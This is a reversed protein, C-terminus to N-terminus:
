SLLHPLPPPEGTAGSALWSRVSRWYELHRQVGGPGAPRFSMQLVWPPESTPRVDALRGELVALDGTKRATADVVEVRLAEDAGPVLVTFSGELRTVVSSGGHVAVRFVDGSLHVDGTSLLAMAPPVGATALVLAPGGQETPMSRLAVGLRERVSASAESM